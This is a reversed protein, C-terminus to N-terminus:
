KLRYLGPGIIRRETFEKTKSDYKIVRQLIAKLSSYERILIEVDDVGIRIDILNSIHFVRIERYGEDLLMRTYQLITDRNIGIANVIDYINGDIRVIFSLGYLMNVADVLELKIDFYINRYKNEVTTINSTTEEVIDFREISTRKTINNFYTDIENTDDYITFCKVETGGRLTSMEKYKNTVPRIFCIEDGDITIRVKEITRDANMAEKISQYTKNFQYLTVGRLDDRSVLFLIEYAYISEDLKHIVLLMDDQFYDVTYYKEIRELAETVKELYITENNM